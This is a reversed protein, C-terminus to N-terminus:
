LRVWKGDIAAQRLDPLSNIRAYRDPPLSSKRVVPPASKRIYSQEALYNDWLNARSIRNAIPPAISASDYLEYAPIM